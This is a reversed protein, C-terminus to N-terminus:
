KTQASNTFEFLEFPTMEFMDVIFNLPIIGSMRNFRKAYRNYRQKARQVNREAQIISSKLHAFHADSELDPYQMAATFIKKLEHTIQQEKQAREARTKSPSILATLQQQIETRDIEPLTAAVLSLSPLLDARNKLKNDLRMWATKASEDLSSLIFYAWFGLVVILCMAGFLFWILM